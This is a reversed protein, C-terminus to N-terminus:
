VIYSFILKRAKMPVSSTDSLDHKEAMFLVLVHFDAINKEMKRSALGISGEYEM